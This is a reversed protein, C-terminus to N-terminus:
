DQIHGVTFNATERHSFYHDVNNWSYEASARYDGVVWSGDVTVEYSFEGTDVDYDITCVEGRNESSSSLFNDLNFYGLLDGRDYDQCQTNTKFYPGRINLYINYRDIESLPNVVEGDLNRIFDRPQPPPMTGTIRITDGLTYHAKDTAVHYVLVFEFTRETQKNGYVAHITHTGDITHWNLTDVEVSFSGDSNVTLDEYFVNSGNMNNIYLYGRTDELIENVMGTIVITEGESYSAKDISITIPESAQGFDTTVTQGDQVTVYEYLDTGVVQVLYNGAPIDTFTYTGSSDTTTRATNSHDALNLYLVIMDPIGAEENDQVGNGNDDSFVTGTLTDAFVLQSSFMVLLSMGVM